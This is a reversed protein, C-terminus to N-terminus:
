KVQITVSKNFVRYNRKGNDYFLCVWASFTANDTILPSLMDAPIIVEPTTSEITQREQGGDEAKALYSFYFVIDGEKPYNECDLSVKIDGNELKEAQLNSCTAVYKDIKLYSDSYSKKSGTAPDIYTLKPRLYDDGIYKVEYDTIEYTRGVADTHIVKYTGEQLGYRKDYAYGENFVISCYPAIYKPIVIYKYNAKFDGIPSHYTIIAEKEGLTSSDWGEVDFKKGLFYSNTTRVEEIVNEASCFKIKVELKAGIKYYNDYLSRNESLTIYFSDEYGESYAFVYHFYEKNDPTVFRVKLGMSTIQRSPPFRSVFYDFVEEERGDKYVAYVHIKDYFETYIDQINIKINNPADIRYHDVQEKLTFTFSFDQAVSDRKYKLYCGNGYSIEKDSDSVNYLCVNAKFTGFERIKDDASIVYSVPSKDFTWSYIETIGQAIQEGSVKLHIEYFTIGDSDPVSNDDLNQKIDGYTEFKGNGICKHTVIRPRYVTSPTHDTHSSSVYETIPRACVAYGTDGYIYGAIYQGLYEGEYYLELEIFGIKNSDYGRAEVDLYIEENRDKMKAKVFGTTDIEAPADNVYYLEWIGEEFSYYQIEPKIIVDYRFTTQVDGYAFTIKYGSWPSPRDTTMTGFAQIEGDSLKKIESKSDTYTVKIEFQSFDCDSNVYTYFGEYNIFEKFANPVNYVELSKVTKEENVTNDYLVITVNFTMGNPAKYTLEQPENLLETDYESVLEADKCTKWDSFTGDSYAYRYKVGGSVAPNQSDKPAFAEKGKTSCEVNTITRTVSNNQETKSVTVKFSATCEGYKVTVTQEGVTLSNFGSIECESNPVAVRSDDSYLAYITLGSLNLEEKWLYATKFSENTVLEIALLKRETKGAPKITSNENGEVPETANEFTDQEFTQNEEYTQAETTTETTTEDEKTFSNIGFIKGMDEMFEGVAYVLISKGDKAPIQNTISILMAFAAALATIKMFTKKGNVKNRIKKSFIAGDAFLLPIIIKSDEDEFTELTEIANVLEDVFECDMDDKLMEEDILAYLEDKLINIFSSENILEAIRTNTMSFGGKKM